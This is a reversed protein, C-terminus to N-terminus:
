AGARNVETKRRAAKWFDWGGKTVTVWGDPAIFLLGDRKMKELLEAPFGDQDYGLIHNHGQVLLSKACGTDVHFIVDLREDAYPKM